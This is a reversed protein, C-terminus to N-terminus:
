VTRFQQFPVHCDHSKLFTLFRKYDEVPMNFLEVLLRYSGRTRELGTQLLFKLDTRTIERSMFPAYAAVWFSERDVFIRRSIEDVLAQRSLGGPADAQALRPFVSDLDAVDITSAETRLVLREVVNRLERVNGPWSYKVLLVLAEPTIELAPRQYTASQLRLFHLVLGEVDSARERLPPIELHLVNLRYFLDQRFDGATVAEALSRNTAAVVRVDLPLRSGARGITEVEGTELFRLLLAQLRLSMEGVEDLFVTGSDAQRLRGPSDRYADTFSGRTHGFLESEMLGDPVGACNITVFPNGSRASRSHIQQAVVEKGVGTEGTILM